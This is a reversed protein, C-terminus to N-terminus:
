SAWQEVSLSFDLIVSCLVSTRLVFTLVAAMISKTDQMVNNECVSELHLCIHPEDPEKLWWMYVISQM